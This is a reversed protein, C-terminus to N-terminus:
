ICVKYQKTKEEFILMGMDMLEAVCKNLSGHILFHETSNKCVYLNKSDNDNKVCNIHHVVEGRLIKRNIKKEAVLIHEYVYGHNNARHHNRCKVLVHYGGSERKKKIKNGDNIKNTYESNCDSCCFSNTYKKFNPLDTLFQINCNACNTEVWYRNHQKGKYIYPERFKGNGCDIKGIWKESWFQNQMLKIGKHAPMKVEM